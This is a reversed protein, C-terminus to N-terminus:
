QEREIRSNEARAGQHEFARTLLRKLRSIWSCGESDRDIFSRANHHDSMRKGGHFLVVEGACEM